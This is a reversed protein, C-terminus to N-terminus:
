YPHCIFCLGKSGGVSVIFVVVNKKTKFHINVRHIPPITHLKFAIKLLLPHSSDVLKSAKKNPLNKVILKVNFTM